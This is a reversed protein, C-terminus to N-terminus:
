QFDMRMRAAKAHGELGELIALKESIEAIEAIADKNLEQYTLIKIFDQVSLGGTFRASGNTPLVARLGVWPTKGKYCVM